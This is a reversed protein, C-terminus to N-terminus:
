EWELCTEHCINSGPLILYLEWYRTPGTTAMRWRQTDGVPQGAWNMPPVWM